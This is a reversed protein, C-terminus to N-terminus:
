GCTCIILHKPKSIKHKAAFELLETPASETIEVVEGGCMLNGTDGVLIGFFYDADDYPRIIEIGDYEEGDDFGDEDERITIGEIVLKEGVKKLKDYPEGTKEDFRKVTENIDEVNAEWGWFEYAHASVSM